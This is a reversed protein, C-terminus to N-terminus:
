NICTVVNVVNVVNVVTVVNVVYHCVRHMKKIFLYFPRVNVLVLLLALVLILVVLVKSKEMYHAIYERDYASNDELRDKKVQKYLDNYKLMGDKVVGM